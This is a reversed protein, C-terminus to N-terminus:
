RKMREIALLIGTQVELFTLNTTGRIFGRGSCRISLGDYSCLMIESVWGM